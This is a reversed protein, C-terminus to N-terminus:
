YHNEGKEEIKSKERAEKKKKLRKVYNYYRYKDRTGMEPRGPFYERMVDKMRMGGERKERILEFEPITNPPLNTTVQEPQIRGLRQLRFIKRRVLETSNGLLEGIEQVTKGNELAEILRKEKESNWHYLSEPDEEMLKRHHSKLSIASRDPFYEAKADWSIDLEAVKLLLENEEATYYKWTSSPAQIRESRLFNYHSRVASPSRGPFSEAIEKWSIDKEKLELLLEDEERTWHKVSERQQPSPRLKHYRAVLSRWTRGPFDDVLEEWTKDEERLKILRNEEEATWKAGRKELKPTSLMNSRVDETHSVRFAAHQTLALPKQIEPSRKKELKLELARITLFLLSLILLFSNLYVKM